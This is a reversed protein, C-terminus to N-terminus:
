LSLVISDGSARSCCSMLRRGEAREARSLVKDRHDIGGEVVAVECTGCLGERCDCSVDIGAQVLADLLTQDAGVRVTIGSDRLHADFAHEVAPDLTTEGASFHEVRLTNDPWGASLADLEDLMRKPGCAYLQTGDPLDRLAAALDLRGGERKAHVSLRGAHDREARELLAMAARSRGAYHLLYPKGLAKLRDAMALIPTIGIGGAVLVYRDAAEDLRFHNRPGAIRLESGAALAQHFHASGGTGNEEKLIAVQYRGDADATGCLSYRRSYGGHILEVHAGPRWKPFGPGGPDELALHLVGESVRAEAVRAPRQLDARAPPGVPFDRSATAAGAAQREPNAAPDWEVLVADPGRFSTNPLYDFSQDAVLRMHPLRRSFEELFIRLEMRAINKGMCQHGGYGFTLHEGANDRYLNLEDPDEFHREDHNASAMVILLRAGAPIDVGGVRADATTIRRWAVISGALRLCEEVANPILGPNAVIERWAAENSLLVKFANGAAKATTEHAAVLIAMMMSHLYSDTVIDPHARNMRISDYMWGEGDPRARMKELVRGSAQWFRGVADAVALQEAPSPRGWTNVTHAVSFARLEEIDDEDVGLFKLAVVLPIEWFMEGVLDAHGREIFRNMYHRTLARVMPKHRELREPLFADMLLRRRELHAPEDENVMTRNMAYGYRQLIAQAEPPAPTIKELAIAPSFLINDRFVAKVDDYRSVVWYGLKPAFFVPAEQRAWRLAEAPDLQYEPGFPDFAETRRSVPCPSAAAPHVPCGQALPRDATM